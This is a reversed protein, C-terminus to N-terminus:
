KKEPCPMKPMTFNIGGDSSVKIIANKFMREHSKFAPPLSGFETFETLADNLSLVKTKGCEVVDTALTPLPQTNSETIFVFVMSSSMRPYGYIIGEHKVECYRERKNVEIDKGTYFRSLTEGKEIKFGLEELIARLAASADKATIPLINCNSDAYQKHVAALLQKENPEIHEGCLVNGHVGAILNSYVSGDNFIIEVQPAKNKTGFITYYEDNKNVKILVITDMAEQIASNNRLYVKLKFHPDESTTILATTIGNVDDRTSQTFVLTQMWRLLDVSKIASSDKRLNYFWLMDTLGYQHTNLVDCFKKLERDFVAQPIEKLQPFVLEGDTPLAGDYNNGNEPPFQGMFFAECHKREFYSLNQFIKRMTRSQIRKKRAANIGRARAIIIAQKAAKRAEEKRLESPNSM